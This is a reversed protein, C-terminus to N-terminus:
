RVSVGVRVWRGARVVLTGGVTIQAPAVWVTDPAPPQEYHGTTWIWAIGNWIHQGAIWTAGAFPAPPPTEDLPPPCPPRDVAGTERLRLKLQVRLDMAAETEIQVRAAAERTAQERRRAEADLERFVAEDRHRRYEPDAGATQLRGLLQWRLDFAARRAGAVERERQQRREYQRRQAEWAARAHMEQQHQRWLPDAGLAVLRASVTARLGFSRQRAEWAAQRRAIEIRVREEAAAQERRLREDQAREEAEFRRRREAENLAERRRREEEARAQAKARADPDAGLGVLRGAITLRLAVARQRQDNIRFRVEAEQRARAEAAAQRAAEAAAERRRQAEYAAANKRRQEEEAARRSAEAVAQRRRQDEYVAANKRRQEEEAARRSAEAAAERRRREEEARARARARAMPDAGATVLSMKLRARLEHGRQDQQARLATARAREEAAVDVIRVLQLTVQAGTVDQVPPDPWLTVLCKGDSSPGLEVTAHALQAGVDGPPLAAAPLAEQAAATAVAGPDVTASVAASGGPGSVAAGAQARPVAMGVLSGLAAAQQQRERELEALRRARYEEFTEGLIGERQATPCVVQYRLKLARPLAVTYRLVQGDTSAPVPLEGALAPSAGPRAVITSSAVLRSQFAPACGTVFAVAAAVIGARSFKRRDVRSDPAM